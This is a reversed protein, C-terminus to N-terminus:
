GQLRSSSPLFHMGQISSMGKPLLLPFSQAAAAAAAGRSKGSDSCNGQTSFPQCVRRYSRSHRALGLPLHSTGGSDQAIGEYSVSLASAVPAVTHNWSSPSGAGAKEAPHLKMRKGRFIGVLPRTQHPAERSFIPM